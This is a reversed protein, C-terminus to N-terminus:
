FNVSRCCIRLMAFVERHGKHIYIHLYHHRGEILDIGLIVFAYHHPPPSPVENTTHSRQVPIAARVDQNTPALPDM